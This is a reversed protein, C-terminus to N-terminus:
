AGSRRCACGDRAHAIGGRRRKIRHQQCPHLGGKRREQRLVGKGLVQAGGAQVGHERSSLAQPRDQHQLARQRRAAVDISRKGRRDRDLEHMGEAEHVVVEGREVVVAHTAALGGAM